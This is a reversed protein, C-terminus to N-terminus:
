FVALLATISIALPSLGLLGAGLGNTLANTSLAGGLVIAEVFGIEGSNDTDAIEPNELIEKVSHPHMENESIIKNQQKRPMALLIIRVGIAFLLFAGFVVPLTGPLIKSLWKGFLIGSESFLFCIFAILLNSLLPIRINRIGYCIGVGFNDVSSSVAFGLIILWTM